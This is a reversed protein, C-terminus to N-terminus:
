AKQKAVENCVRVFSSILSKGTGIFNAIPAQMCGLFKALLVEKPPIKALDQIKSAEVVTNFFIGGKISLKDNLKAFEFTTKAPFLEDEPSFVVGVPGELVSDPLDPLNNNKAAIKILTKKAIQYKAKKERLKNRFESIASVSLGDNSAFVVSKANQFNETLEKLIESKKDKSIAM